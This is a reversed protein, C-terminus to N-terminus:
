SSDEEFVPILLDWGDRHRRTRDGPPVRQGLLRSAAPPRVMSVPVYLAGHQEAPQEGEKGTGDVGPPVRQRLLRSAAPPRVM